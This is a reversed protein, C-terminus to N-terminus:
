LALFVCDPAQKSLFALARHSPNTPGSRLDSSRTITKTRAHAKELQSLHRRISEHLGKINSVEEFFSDLPTGTPASGDQQGSEIDEVGKQAENAQSGQGQAHM